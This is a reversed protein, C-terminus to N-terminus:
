SHAQLLDLYRDAISSWDGQRSAAHMAATATEPRDLLRTLAGPLEATLRDAPLLIGGGAPVEHPLDGVDSAVVPKGFAIALKLVGSTTGELYPLAVVDAACFYDEVEEFPIRRDHILVNPLRRAEDLRAPWQAGHTGLDNSGAVVFKIDPRDVLSRAADLLPGLGKRPELHGFFLVVRDQLSLGIRQRAEACSPMRLRFLDYIGHPIVTMPRDVGMARVADFASQSHVVLADFRGYYWAYEARSWPRPYHPLVDHIALATRVGHRRLHACGLGEAIPSKLESQLLLWDPADRIIRALFRPFDIPYHRSRRFPTEVAFGMSRFRDPLSTATLLRVRAKDSLARCLSVSYDTIGSQGTFCAVDVRM